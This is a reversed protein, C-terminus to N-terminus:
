HLEKIRPVFSGSRVDQTQIEKRTATCVRCIHGATFSENFGAIGHAGLNDALVVVVTGKVCRGLLPVFIGDQELAKLDQLLPQM